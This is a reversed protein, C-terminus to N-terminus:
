ASRADREALDRFTFLQKRMMPLDGWALAAHRLRVGRSQEGELGLSASLLTGDPHPDARYTITLDGFAARAVRGRTRLTLSRDQEFADLVFAMVPQGVVLRDAGPTLTRPSRRGLNDVLDYSYPAVSLQCLWRFVTAPSARVVVARLAEGPRRAAVQEPPVAGWVWPLRTM